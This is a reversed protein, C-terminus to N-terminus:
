HRKRVGLFVGLAFAGLLCYGPHRRYFDPWRTVARSKEQLALSSGVLKTRAGEIVKQLHLIQLQWKDDEPAGAM